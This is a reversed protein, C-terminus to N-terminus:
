PMELFGEKGQWNLSLFDQLQTRIKKHSTVNTYRVVHTKAHATDPGWAALRWHGGPSKEIATCYWAEGAENNRRHM